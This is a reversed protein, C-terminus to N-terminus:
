SAMRYPEAFEVMTGGRTATELLRLAAVIVERQRQHDGPAGLTRGLPHATIVLRPIKMPELRPLFARVAVVVTPIGDAELLRALHGM